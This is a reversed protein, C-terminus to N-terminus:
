LDDGEYTLGGDGVMGDPWRWRDLRVASNAKRERPSQFYDEPKGLAAALARRWEESRPTTHGDIYNKISRVKIGTRRGLEEASLKSELFAANFKDTFEIDHLM